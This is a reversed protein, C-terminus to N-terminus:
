FFDPFPVWQKGATKTLSIHEIGDTAACIFNVRISKLETKMESQASTSTVFTTENAYEGKNPMFLLDYDSKDQTQVVILGDGIQMAALDNSSTVFIILTCALDDLECDLKM